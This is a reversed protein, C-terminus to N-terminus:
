LLQAKMVLRMRMTLTALGLWYRDNVM